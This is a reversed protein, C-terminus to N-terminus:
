LCRKLVGGGRTALGEGGGERERERGKHQRLAKGDQPTWTTFQFPEPPEMSAQNFKFLSLATFLVLPSLDTVCQLAGWVIVTNVPHPSSPTCALRPHTSLLPYSFSLLLPSTLVFHLHLSAIVSFFLIFRLSLFFFHCCSSQLLLSLFLSYTPPRFSQFHTFGKMPMFVLRNGMACLCVSPFM